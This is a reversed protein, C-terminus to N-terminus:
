EGREERLYAGLPCMYTHDIRFVDNADLDGACNCTDLLIEYAREVATM